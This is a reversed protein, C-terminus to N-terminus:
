WNPFPAVAAMQDQRSSMTAMTTPWAMRMRGMNVLHKQDRRNVQVAACVLDEGGGRIAVSTSGRALLCLLPFFSGKLRDAASSVTRLWSDSLIETTPEEDDDVLVAVM